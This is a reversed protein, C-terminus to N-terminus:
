PITAAVGRAGATLLVISPVSIPTVVPYKLAELTFVSPM